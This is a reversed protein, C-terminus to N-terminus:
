VLRYDRFSEDTILHGGPKGLSVLMGDRAVFAPDVNANGDASPVDAHWGALSEGDFLLRSKEAASPIGARGLGGPKLGGGGCASIAGLVVAGLLVVVLPAPSPRSPASM